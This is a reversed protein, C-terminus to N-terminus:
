SEKTNKGIQIKEHKWAEGPIYGDFKKSADFFFHIDVLRGYSYTNIMNHSDTDFASVVIIVTDVKGVLADSHSFDLAWLLEENSQVEYVETDPLLAKVSNISAQLSDTDNGFYVMIRYTPISPRGRRNRM